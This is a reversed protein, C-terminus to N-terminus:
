TAILGHTRLAALIANVASRAQTDIVTGASPNAIAAARPGVVQQGGVAVSSARVTGLEWAGQRYIAHVNTSRVLLAMGEVPEQFRWGGSSYSAVANAHSAWEGTPVTGVIYGAGLTPSAPPANRPPEEVSGAVLADLLQLAENHFLEKQAQGAIECREQRRVL